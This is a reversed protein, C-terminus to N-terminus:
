RILMKKTFNNLGRVKVNSKKIFNYFRLILLDYKNFIESGKFNFQLISILISKDSYNIKKSNYSYHIESLMIFYPGKLYKISYYDGENILTKSFDNVYRTVGKIKKELFVRHSTNIRVDDIRFYSDVVSNICIEYKFENILARTHLEVDQLRLYRDDFGNIKDLSNRNWLVM